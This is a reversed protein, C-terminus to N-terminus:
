SGNEKAYLLLNASNSGPNGVIGPTAADLVCRRLEEPGAEPHRESCLALVGAVHPSAMSTGSMVMEGEEGRSASGIDVGPAFIDVCPGHNSFRARYDGKTTAGTGLADGVRSPSGACANAHDNGAAVAYVVGAAISRCLARDLAPAGGGGLSMNAVAPWGHKQVHATVWDIGEIVDADTGSGDRLVRVPHIIVEKAIGSRTGGITGAVHTGHGHDDRFGGPQSSYGEGIRGEFEKQREDVGTDLVYVHVGEGTAGPEFVGDLPLERQDTRDLGWLSRPLQSPIPSVSKIGNRQVFAVRPDDAVQRAEEESMEVAIVGISSYTEGSALAAFDQTLARFPQITDPAPRSLVVLYVQDAATEKVKVLGSPQSTPSGTGTASKTIEDCLVPELPAFSCGSLFVLVVATYSLFKM